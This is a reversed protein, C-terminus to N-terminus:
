VAHAPGATGSGPPVQADGAPLNAPVERTLAKELEDLLQHARFPKYLVGQLGRQRAKVISHGPDYGFGTMFIVPVNARLDLIRCFCEYGSMDPLRIDALVADYQHRRVMLIAEEGNHATEVLAGYRGVLDHAAQRVTEDNDAVLVRKGRLKPRQPKSIPPNAVKPTISDGVNHILERVQRTHQIVRQLRETVLSDHGIYKELIWTADNLVEDVPSAVERLLRETSETVTSMKEAVLLELTNLAVAVERSFLELVQLDQENFASPRTSEVNFTGVVVDQRLLPVTLSSRAEYAGPLYLPDALTDECLYSRGSAAVFGTVGNGEPAAMLQRQEAEPRMGVALLPDLRGTSPDLLRIEVTEFELLAKTYYVIKQKLLDVRDQVSMHQIQSPDLEGLELGAHYIANLKQDQLIETSIDRVTILVLPTQPDRNDLVNTAQVDLYTKEGIRMTSRVPIQSSLATQFPNNEEACVTALGFVEHFTRGRSQGPAGSMEDFRPNSWLIRQRDDVIAVGDPLYAMVGGAQPILCSARLAEITPQLVLVGRVDAENLHELAESLMTARVPEYAGRLSERAVEWQETTGGFVLIKSQKAVAAFEV